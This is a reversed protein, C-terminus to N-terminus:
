ATANGVRTLNLIKGEPGYLFDLLDDFENDNLDSWINKKPAEYKEISEKGCSHKCVNGPLHPTPILSKSAFLVICVFLILASFPVSCPTGRKKAM